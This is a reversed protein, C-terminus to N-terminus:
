VTRSRFPDFNKRLRRLRVVSLVCLLRIQTMQENVQEQQRNKCGDAPVAYYKGERFSICKWGAM